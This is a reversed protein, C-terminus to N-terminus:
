TKYLIEYAGRLAFQYLDVTAGIFAATLVSGYDFKDTSILYYLAVAFGSFLAGRAQHKIVGTFVFAGLEKVSNSKSSPSKGAILSFDFDELDRAPNFNKIIFDLSKSM